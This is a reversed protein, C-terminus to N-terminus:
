IPNDRGKFMKCYEDSDYCVIQNRHPSGECVDYQLSYLSDDVDLDFLNSTKNNVRIAVPSDPGVCNTGYPLGNNDYCWYKNCCRETGDDYDCRFGSPMEIGMEENTTDFNRGTELHFIDEQQKMYRLLQVAEAARSKEVAKQYQPLAVASLIGIILVVVLLEVLTFGGRRPDKGSPCIAVNAEKGLDNTKFRSYCTINANKM